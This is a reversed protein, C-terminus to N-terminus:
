NYENCSKYGNSNNRGKGPWCDAFSTEQVFIEPWIGYDM